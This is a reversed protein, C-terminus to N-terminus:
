FGGSNGSHIQFGVWLLFGHTDHKAARPLQEYRCYSYHNCKRKRCGPFIDLWSEIPSITWSTNSTIDFTAKSYSPAAVNLTEASVDFSPEVEFTSNGFHLQISGKIDQDVLFTMALSYPNRNWRILDNVFDLHLCEGTTISDKVWNCLSNLSSWELLDWHYNYQSTNGSFYHGICQLYQTVTNGGSNYSLYVDDYYVSMANDSSLFSGTIFLIRKGSPATSVFYVLSGGELHIPEIIDKYGVLLNSSTWTTSMASKVKGGSEIAPGAMKLLFHTETKPNDIAKQNEQAQISFNLIFSIVFSAQLLAKKM